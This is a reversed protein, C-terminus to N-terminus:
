CYCCMIIDPKTHYIKGCAEPKVRYRTLRETSLALANHSIPNDHQSLSSLVEGAEVCDEGIGHIFNNSYYARRAPCDLRADDNPFSSHQRDFHSILLFM